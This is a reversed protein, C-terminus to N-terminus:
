ARSCDWRLQSHPKFYCVEERGDEQIMNKINSLNEIVDPVGLSSLSEDLQDDFPNQKLALM